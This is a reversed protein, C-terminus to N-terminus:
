EEAKAQIAIAEIIDTDCYKKLLSVFANDAVRDEIAIAVMAEKTAPSANQITKTFASYDKDKYIKRIEETSISTFPSEIVETTEASVGSVKLAGCRILKNFGNDFTLEDYVEQTLGIERGPMLTRHTKTDPSVLCVKYNSINKVKIM